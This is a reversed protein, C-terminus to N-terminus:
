GVWVRANRFMRLWPGADGWEAPHWSNQVTRYVREPHPMMITVRGDRSCLGAIGHISGNPNAPYHSAVQGWNDLYRLGITGSQEAAACHAKNQFEVQGEGHAVAIPLHSGEMGAFFLSPSSEIRLLSVRAEFQESANRVFRPWHDSGPILSQLQSLMQCGNCVGLAFSDERSFFAEFQDRARANFLVSKAWGGGAGLVDGYSFGGCAVAGKFNALDVRGSLIDSMHVDVSTFGAADFAAAMEIQGNVGQERVIAVSPRVGLNLYPVAIDQQPDFSLKASLGPDDDRAIQAFEQAACESNDRMSQIRYSTEAWAQHLEARRASWLTQGDVQIDIIQTNNLDGVVHAILQVSRLEALVADADTSCVQLVAGLEENFLFAILDDNMMGSDLRLSLGTRGAFSMECLTAWLGGDSRDHYALLKDQSRLSQIAAFFAALQAPQDLDPGEEGLEAYVQALASGGLRQRGNGLDVLLLVTDGADTRLQPTLTRRADQVPAFASIILSLPATVSRSEGDQQWVTRM